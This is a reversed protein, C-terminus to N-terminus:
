GEHRAIPLEIEFRSGQIPDPKVRLQGGHSLVASRAAHLGIETNSEHILDHLALFNEPLEARAKERSDAVSLRAWPGQVELSVNLNGGAPMAELADIALISLTQAVVSRSGVLRVPCEPLSMRVHVRHRRCYPAILGVLEQVPERLDFDEPADKVAPMHTLLVELLEHLRKLESSIIGVYRQSEAVNAPADAGASPDFLTTLLELNLVMANLPARVEHAAAGLVRAMGRAHAALRLDSELAELARRDRLLAWARGGGAPRLDIRVPRSGPEAAVVLDVTEPRLSEAAARIAERVAPEQSRAHLVELNGCDLLARARRNAFEANGSADFLVVGVELGETLTELRRNSAAEISRSAVLWVVSAGIAIGLVLAVALGAGIDASFVPPALFLALACPM